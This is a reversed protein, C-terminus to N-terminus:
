QTFEILVSPSIVEFAKKKCYPCVKKAFFRYHFFGLGFWWTFAFFVWNFHKAPNMTKLCDECYAVEKDPPTKMYQAELTTIVDPKHRYKHFFRNM